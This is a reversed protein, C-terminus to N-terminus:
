LRLGAVIVVWPMRHEPRQRELHRDRVPPRVDFPALLRHVQQLLAEDVVPGRVFAFRFRSRLRRALARSLRGWCHPEATRSDNGHAPRLAESGQTRVPQMNSIGENPMVGKRRSWADSGSGIGTAMTSKTPPRM